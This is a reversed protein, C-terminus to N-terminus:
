DEFSFKERLTKTIRESEREAEMRRAVEVNSERKKERRERLRARLAHDQIPTQLRAMVDIRPRTAERADPILAQPRSVFASLESVSQHRSVPLADMTVGGVVMTKSPIRIETERVIPMLAPDRVLPSNEPLPKRRILFTPKPLRIRSAPKPLPKDGGDSSPPSVAGPPAPLSKDAWLMKASPVAPTHKSLVASSQGSKPLVPKAEAPKDARLKLSPVAPTHKSVVASSKGSKPLGPKAEAPKDKRGFRHLYFYQEPPPPAFVYRPPSYAKPPSRNRPRTSDTPLPFPKKPFYPTYVTSPLNLASSGASDPSSVHKWNFAHRSPMLCSPHRTIPSPVEDDWEFLSQSPSRSSRKSSPSSERSARGRPVPKLPILSRERTSLRPPSPTRASLEGAALLPRYHMANPSKLLLVTCATCPTICASTQVLNACSGSANHVCVPPRM